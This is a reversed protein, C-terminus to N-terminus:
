SMKAKKAEQRAIMDCRQNEPHGSHGKIWHTKVKHTKLLQYLNQWLEKNAIEKNSANKWNNKAWNELWESIGKLVYSSDSYLNVECPEKLAKLAEVVATLEMENNTTNPKGGRLVKEKGKYRLISCWGGAGPNGLCSGDTYIDVKKM